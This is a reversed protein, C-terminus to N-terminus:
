PQPSHPVLASAGAEPEGVLALYFASSPHAPHITTGNPNAPRSAGTHCDLQPASYATPPLTQLGPSTQVLSLFNSLWRDTPLLQICACILEGVSFDSM